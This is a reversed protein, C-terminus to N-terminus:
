ATEADVAEGPAFHADGDEDEVAHAEIWTAAAAAAGVARLMGALAEVETCSMRPGVDGAFDGVEFVESFTPLPM